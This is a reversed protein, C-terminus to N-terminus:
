RLAGPGCNRAALVYAAADYSRSARRTLSFISVVCLIERRM